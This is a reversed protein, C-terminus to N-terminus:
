GRRRSGELEAHLPCQKRRGEMWFCRDVLKRFRATATRRHQAGLITKEPGDKMKAVSGYRRTDAIFFSVDGHRFTFYTQADRFPPPNAADHYTMFAKIAQQYIGTGNSSWNNNIEHDDYLHLWPLETWAQSWSPSAYVQRYAQQYDETNWGFRKPLDIYIFDGLFLMFSLERSEAVKLLFDLGRISLQHDLPNYTWFAKICSSSVMSWRKPREPHTHFRGKHSANTYYVYQTDSRLNELVFTAM